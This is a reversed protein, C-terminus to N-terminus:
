TQISLLVIIADCVGEQVCEMALQILSPPCDPAYELIFEPLKEADVGFESFSIM